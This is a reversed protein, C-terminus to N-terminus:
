WRASAAAASAGNTCCTSIRRGGARPGRRHAPRPLRVPRRARVDLRRRADPARGAQREYRHDSRSAHRPGPGRARRSARAGPSGRRLGASRRTGCGGCGTSGGRDRGRARDGDLFIRRPAFPGPRAQLAGDAETRRGATPSTPHEVSIGVASTDPVTVWLPLKEPTLPQMRTMGPVCVLGM